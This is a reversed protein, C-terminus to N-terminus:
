SNIGGMKKPINRYGCRKCTLAGGPQWMTKISNCVPCNKRCIHGPKLKHNCIKCMCYKEGM